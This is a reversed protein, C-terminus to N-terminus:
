PRNFYKATAALLEEVPASAMRDFYAQEIQVLRTDAAARGDHSAVIEEATMGIRAKRAIDALVYSLVGQADAWAVDLHKSPADPEVYVTRLDEVLASLRDPDALVREMVTFAVPGLEPGDLFARAPGEYYHARMDRPALWVRRTVEGEPGMEWIPALTLEWGRSLGAFHYDAVNLALMQRATREISRSDMPLYRGGIVSATAWFL